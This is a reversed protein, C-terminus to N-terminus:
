TLFSSHASVETEHMYVMVEHISILPSLGLPLRRGHFENGVPSSPTEQSFLDEQGVMARKIM